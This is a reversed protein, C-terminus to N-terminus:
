NVFKNAVVDIFGEVAKSQPAEIQCLEVTTDRCMPGSKFNSVEPNMLGFSDNVDIQRSTSLQPVQVLATGCSLLADAPRLSPNRYM